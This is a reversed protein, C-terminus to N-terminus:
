RRRREPTPAHLTPEDRQPRCSQDDPPQLTVVGGSGRVIEEPNQSRGRPQHGDGRPRREHELGAFPIQRAFVPEQDLFRAGADVEHDRREAHHHEREKMVHSRREPRRLHKRHTQQCAIRRRDDDVGDTNRHRHPQGVMRARPRCEARGTDVADLPDDHVEATQHQEARQDPPEIAACDLRHNVREATRTKGQGRVVGDRERQWKGIAGPAVREGTVSQDDEGKRQHEHPESAQNGHQHTRGGNRHVIIPAERGPKKTPAVDHPTFPPAVNLM